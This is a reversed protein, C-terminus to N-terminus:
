GAPDLDRRLCHVLPRRDADYDAWKSAPIQAPDVEAFGQRAFFAVVRPSTTCAYVYTYGAAAAERCAHEVVYGGVGEGVFRTLTYLSAIEGAREDPHPLLAGIGALYRGEVFVGFAHALVGDLEAQPRPLLYGEDVGRQILDGAADLDDLGLRRVDVWRERTFMTGSGAYTFLEDALGELSCVNVAPIGAELMATLEKLRDVLVADAPDRAPVLSRLAALDLYSLRQGDDRHLAGGPDVWVLKSVGLRPLVSRAEAAFDKRRDIVLVARSRERLRRWLRSALRPSAAPVGAGPDLREALEGEPVVLVVRTHNAELEDLVAELPAVAGPARPLAIALTRGRFEALYFGKESFPAPAASRETM